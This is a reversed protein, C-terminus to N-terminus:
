GLGAWPEQAVVEPLAQELSGRAFGKRELSHLLEDLQSRYDSSDRAATWERELEELAAMLTEPVYQGGYPGFRHELASM